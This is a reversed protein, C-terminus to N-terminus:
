ISVFFVSCPSAPPTTPKERYMDPSLVLYEVSIDGFPNREKEQQDVYHFGGPCLSIPLSKSSKSNVTFRAHFGEDCGARPIFCRSGVPLVDGANGSQAPEVLLARYYMQCCFLTEPNRLLVSRRTFASAYRDLAYWKERRKSLEKMSCRRSIPTLGYALTVVFSLRATQESVYM